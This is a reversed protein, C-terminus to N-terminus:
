VEEYCYGAGIVTKIVAIPLKKRLNKIHADIVRDSVMFDDPAIVTLLHERTYVRKPHQYMTDFLLFETVTLQLSEQNYYVQFNEQKVELGQQVAIAQTRRLVAEIRKLLLMPSFPKIIYDDALRNFAELQSNEDGLATLMISGCNEQLSALQELIDLGSIFPVMIDLIAVDYRNEELLQLAEKGNVAVDVQYTENLGLYECVVERMIAEDELYLIRTM